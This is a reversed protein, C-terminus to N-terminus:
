ENETYPIRKLFTNARQLVKKANGHTLRKLAQKHTLWEYGIHEDSLKVKANKSEMLFFTVEKFITRGGRRYFYSIEERFDDIFRARLIGTEEGLERVVTDRESENPEINGKVFDWHGAEYHLLLYKREGNERFVVAGCSKERSM